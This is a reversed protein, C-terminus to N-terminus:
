FLHTSSHTFTRYLKLNPPLFLFSIIKAWFIEHLVNVTTELCHLSNSFILTSLSIRVIDNTLSNYLSHVFSQKMGFVLPSFAFQRRTAAIFEDLPTCMTRAKTESWSKNQAKHFVGWTCKSTFCLLAIGHFTLESNRMCEYLHYLPTPSCFIAAWIKYQVPFVFQYM